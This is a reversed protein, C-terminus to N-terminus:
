AKIVTETTRTAASTSPHPQSSPSATSIGAERAAAVLLALQRRGEQGDLLEGPLEMLQRRLAAATPTRRSLDRELLGMVALELARPVAPNQGSPPPIEGELSRKLMEVDTAATFVATGTLCEHLTIGLAFLDARGDYPQGLVQEPAAYGLKGRMIGTATLREQGAVLAIGFDALKADGTRTLMINPPNLDRHVLSLATGTPSIRTHIYDLAETLQWALHAVAAIPMPERSIARHSLLDRLSVGDIFEMALFCTDGHTGFDLVQVVGPHTLMAGLEAERRFLAVADKHGAYSPLIRKLAVQREFGGEPSYTAHFVEAMGGSGIRKGLLYKGLLDQARSAHVLGRIRGVLVILGMALGGYSILSMLLPVTDLQVFWARYLLPVLGVAATMLVASRSLSLGSLVIFSMMMATTNVLGMWPVPLKATQLLQTLAILPVDLLPIVWGARKVLKGKVLLRWVTVAAIAYLLSVALSPLYRMPEPLLLTRVGVLLVLGAVVLRIKALASALVVREGDIVRELAARFAPNPKTERDGGIPTLSSSTM